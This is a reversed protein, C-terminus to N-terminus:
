AGAHDTEEDADHLVPLTEADPLMGAEPLEGAESLAAATHAYPVRKAQKAKKAAKAEQDFFLIGIILIAVGVTVLIDAFNFVAFRHLQFDFYDVVKGGRFIRDYMNGIGGAAILTIAPYLWRYERGKRHLVYMGVLMAIVSLVILLGRNGSLISFAAGSNELYRLHMWDLSGIPLFSREPQGQLNAIAWLKIAQDAGVLAAIVAIILVLTIM